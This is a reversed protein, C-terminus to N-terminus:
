YLLASRCERQASCQDAHRRGSEHDHQWNPRSAASQAHISTDISWGSLVANAFGNVGPKPIDYTAAAAFVHRIDFSANGRQALRFSSSASDEDIAHSWTYSALLQLGRSLRRQFQTQLAHYDSTARNTTLNVTTFSPNITSLSLQRQQLLRRGVAGVYSVTLAQSNGISQQVAFNWQLTYPLELAPDFVSLSAYPPILSPLLYPIASPALQTPSPPFVINSLTRSVSFPYANFQNSSQDNGTDYYVGFGGRLVTERGPKQFLDYAIGIRPAFNNYTTKWLRTGRPALQMASLNSIQTVALPANGNAETPAPNVEWRIGLDLTLRRTPKWTDQGYSSFNIYVPRLQAVQAVVIGSPASSNLVQQLSLFNAVLVYTNM